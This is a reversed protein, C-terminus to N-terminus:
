VDSGLSHENADVVFEGVVKLGLGTVSRQIALPGVYLGADPSRASQCRHTRGTIRINLQANYRLTDVLHPM